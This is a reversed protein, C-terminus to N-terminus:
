RRLASLMRLWDGLCTCFCSMSTVSIRSTSKLARCLALIPAFNTVCWDLGVIGLSVELTCISIRVVHFCKLTSLDPFNNHLLEPRYLVSTFISEWPIQLSVEGETSSKTCWVKSNLHILRADSSDGHGCWGRHCLKKFAHTCAVRGNSDNVWYAKSCDTSRPWAPICM